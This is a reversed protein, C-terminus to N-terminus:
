YNHPNPIVKLAGPCRRIEDYMVNITAYSEVVTSWKFEANSAISAKAKDEYFQVAMPYAQRLTEISKAHDDNRRLRSVSTLVAEYYNGHEFASKGSSCGTLITIAILCVFLPSKLRFM